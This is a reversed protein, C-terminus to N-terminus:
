GTGAPLITLAHTHGDRDPEIVGATINHSHGAVIDTRGNGQRDMYAEHEHIAGPGFSRTTLRQILNRPRVTPTVVLNPNPARM